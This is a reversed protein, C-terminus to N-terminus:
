TVYEYKCGNVVGKDRWIAKELSNKKQGLAEALVWLSDWVKSAGTALDTVKVKKPIRKPMIDRGIKMAEGMKEADQYNDVYDRLYYWRENRYLNSKDVGKRNLYWYLTGPKIGTIRSAVSASPYIIKRNTTENVSIIDKSVGLTKGVDKKSLSGWAEGEYIFAWKSRWPIKRKGRLWCRILSANVKFHRACAQLSYFRQIEDTELDKVLVPRNDTRLGSEYAHTANESVTMWELNDLANNAKVGDKHNVQFDKPDGPCELFTLAVLRHVLYKGFVYYSWFRNYKGKTITVGDPCLVLGERNVPIWGTAEVAYFDDKVQKPEPKYHPEM